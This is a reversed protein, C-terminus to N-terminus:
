SPLIEIEEKKMGPLEARVTFNDKDEHLDLAPSWGSTFPQLGATLASFPAEFLRDIENHLSSLQRFPDWRATEPRQWRILAMNKDKRYSNFINAIDTRAEDIGLGFIASYMCIYRLGFYKHNLLHRIIYAM